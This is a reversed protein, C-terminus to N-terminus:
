FVEDIFDKRWVSVDLSFEFTFRVRIKKKSTEYVVFRWRIQCM